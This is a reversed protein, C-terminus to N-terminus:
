AHHECIRDQQERHRTVEDGEQPLGDNVVVNWKIRVDAEVLDNGESGKQEGDCMADAMANVEVVDRGLSGAIQRAQEALHVVATM